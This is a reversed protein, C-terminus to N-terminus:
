TELLMLHHVCPQYSYEPAPNRHHSVVRGVHHLHLAHEPVGLSGGLEEHAADLVLHDAEVKVLALLTLEQVGPAGTSHELIVPPKNPTAVGTALDM